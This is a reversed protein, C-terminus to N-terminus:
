MPLRLGVSDPYCWSHPAACTSNPQQLPVVVWGTPEDLDLARLEKLETPSTGARVSMRSPTYSEDLKFDLKIALEQM